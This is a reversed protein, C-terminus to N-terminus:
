PKSPAYVGIRVQKAYSFQMGDMEVIQAPRAFRPDGDTLEWRPRNPRMRRAWEADFTPAMDSAGEVVVGGNMLIPAILRERQPLLRDYRSQRLASMSGKILVTQPALESLLDDWWNGASRNQASQNRYDQSRYASAAASDDVEGLEGVLYLVTKERGVRPDFFRFLLNVNAKSDEVLQIQTVKADPVYAFLATMLKPLIDRGTGKHDIWDGNRDIVETEVPTKLTAFLRSPAVLTHNDILVYTESKPFLVLPTALDFGSMPYVVTQGLKAPIKLSAISGRLRNLTEVTNDLARPKQNKILSPKMSYVKLGARREFTVDRGRLAEGATEGHSIAEAVFLGECRRSDAASVPRAVGFVVGLLILTSPVVSKFLM